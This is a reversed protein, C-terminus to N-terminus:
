HAQRMMSPLVVVLLFAVWVVLLRSLSLTHGREHNRATKLCVADKPRRITQRRADETLVL